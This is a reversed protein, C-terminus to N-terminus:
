AFAAGALMGFWTTGGDVTAFTLVDVASADTSLTPATGGAWLISVPWTFAHGGTVDQKLILTFSGAGTAPPNSIALTTIEETLEVEFVNSNELDLSLLGAVSTPTTLTEAYGKLEHGSLVQGGGEVQAFSELTEACMTLVIDSGGSWGSATPECTFTDGSRGTVRVVENSSDSGIRIFFFEGPDLFPFLNGYSGQVLFSTAGANVAGNLTTVANNAFKMKM